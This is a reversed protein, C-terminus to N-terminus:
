RSWRFIIKELTKQKGGNQWQRICESKEEESFEVVPLDVIEMGCDKVYKECTARNTNPYFENCAAEFADRSFQKLSKIKAAKGELINYPFLKASRNTYNFIFEAIEQDHKFYITQCAIDNFNEAPKMEIVFGAQEGPRSFPQLGVAHLKSWNYLGPNDVYHYFVGPENHFTIPVYKEDLCETSAFFAAVFKDVTIDMLETKIGYHQALALPDIRLPTTIKNGDPATMTLGKRFIRVIPYDEMLIRLEEYKLREVFQLAPTMGDRYLSPYCKDYYSSQGRYYDNFAPSCPVLSAIEDPTVMVEFMGEQEIGPFIGKFFGQRYRWLEEGISFHDLIDLLNTPTRPSKYIHWPVFNIKGGSELLVKLDNIHEKVEPGHRQEEYKTYINIEDLASANDGSEICIAIYAELKECILPLAKSEIAEEVQGKMDDKDMLIVSKVFRAHKKEFTNYISDDINQVIQRAESALSAYDPNCRNLLYTIMSIFARDIRALSAMKMNYAKLYSIEAKRIFYLALGCYRSTFMRAIETYVDGILNLDGYYEALGLAESLSSISIGHSSMVMELRGRYILVKIKRASDKIASINSDIMTIGDKYRGIRFCLEAGLCLRNYIVEEPLQRGSFLKDFEQLLSLAEEHHIQNIAISIRRLLDMAYDPNYTKM